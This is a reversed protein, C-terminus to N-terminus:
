WLYRPAKSAQVQTVRFVKSVQHLIPVKPVELREPANTSKPVRADKRVELVESLNPIDPVRFVKPAEMVKPM